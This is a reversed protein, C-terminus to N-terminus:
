FLPIKSHFTSPFLIKLHKEENRPEQLKSQTWCLCPYPEAFGTPGMEPMCPRVWKKPHVGLAYPCTPAFIPFVAKFSHRQISIYGRKQCDGRCPNQIEERAESLHGTYM